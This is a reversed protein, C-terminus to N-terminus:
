SVKAWATGAVLIDGKRLVGRQVLATCLRGRGPDIQSEVVVGEMPGKGESRLNMMDTQFAFLITILLFKVLESCVQTSFTCIM